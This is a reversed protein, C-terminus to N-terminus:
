PEEETESVEIFDYYDEVMDNLQLFYAQFLGSIAYSKKEDDSFDPLASKCVVTIDTTEEDITYHVDSAYSVEIANIILMTM